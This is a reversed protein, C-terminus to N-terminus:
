KLKFKGVHEKLETINYEPMDTELWDLRCKQCQFGRVEQNKYWTRIQRVHLTSLCKECPPLHKM